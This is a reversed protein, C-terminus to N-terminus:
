LIGEVEDMCFFSPNLNRVRGTLLLGDEGLENLRVLAEPGVIPVNAVRVFALTWFVHGSWPLLQNHLPPYPYLTWMM